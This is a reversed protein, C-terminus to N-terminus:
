EGTTQATVRSRAFLAGIAGVITTILSLAAAVQEETWDWWGFGSGLAVTATAFATVAAAIAVPEEKTDPWFHAVLASLLGIVAGAEAIVLLTQEESWDVIDFAALFTPVVAALGGLTGLLNKLFSPM